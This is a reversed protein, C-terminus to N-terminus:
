NLEIMSLQIDFTSNAILDKQINLSTYNVTLTAELSNKVEIEPTNFFYFLIYDNYEGSAPLTLICNNKLGLIICSVGLRPDPLFEDSFSDPILTLTLPLTKVGTILQKTEENVYNITWTDVESTNRWKLFHLGSSVLLPPDTEDPYYDVIAQNVITQLESVSPFSESLEVEVPAEANKTLIINNTGNVNPASQGPKSITKVLLPYSVSHVKYIGQKVDKYLSATSSNIRYKFAYLDM